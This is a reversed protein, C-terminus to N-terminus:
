CLRMDSTMREINIREINSNGTELGDGQLCLGVLGLEIEFVLYWMGEHAKKDINYM